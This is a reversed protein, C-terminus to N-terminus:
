SYARTQTGEQERQLKGFAVCELIHSCMKCDGWRGSGFWCFSRSSQALVRSISGGTGLNRMQLLFINPETINCLGEWCLYDTIM